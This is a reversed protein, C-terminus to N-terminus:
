GNKTIGEFMEKVIGVENRLRAIHGAMGKVHELDDENDFRLEVEHCWEKLAEPIKDLREELEAIRSYLKANHVYMENLFTCLKEVREGVWSIDTYTNAVKDATERSIDRVRKGAQSAMEGIVDELDKWRVLDPPLDKVRLYDTTAVISSKPLSRRKKQEQTM